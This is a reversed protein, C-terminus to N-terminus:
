YKVMYEIILTNIAIVRVISTCSDFSIEHPRYYPFIRLRLARVFLGCRYFLWINTVRM